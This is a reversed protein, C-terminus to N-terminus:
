PTRIRDSLDPSIRRFDDLNWTYINESDAEVACRLLLADHVRGGAIGRTALSRITDSYADAKLTILTLRQLVDEVFLMAQEPLIKPKVPLRTLVSYVEALTHAACASTDKTASALRALSPEHHPHDALHSAVLVSTDFFDRV